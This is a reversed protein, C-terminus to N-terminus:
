NPVCPTYQHSFFSALSLNLHNPDCSWAAKSKVTNQLDGAHNRLKIFQPVNMTTM